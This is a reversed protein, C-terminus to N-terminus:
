KTRQIWCQRAQGSDFLFIKDRNCNIFSEIALRPSHLLNKDGLDWLFDDFCILGSNKVLKFSLAADLLVYVADHSGDIYIFDYISKSQNESYIKALEISSYGKLKILEIREAYKSKLIAMNHDFIEEAQNFDTEVHERGGEWTDISTISLTYSPVKLLFDAM